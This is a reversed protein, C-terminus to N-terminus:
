NAGSFRMRRDLVQTAWERDEASSNSDNLVQRAVEREHEAQQRKGERFHTLEHAPEVFFEPVAMMLLGVFNSINRNNRLQCIKVETFHAIEEDTAAKDHARCLRPIRQEAAADLIIGHKRCVDAVASSSPQKKTEEKNGLLTTAAVVTTAEEAVVVETTAEAVTTSQRAVVTTAGPGAVTTSQGAVVTTSKDGVV